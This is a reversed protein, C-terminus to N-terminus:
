PADSGTGDLTACLQAGPPHDTGTGTHVQAPRMHFGQPTFRIVFPAGFTPQRSRAFNPEGPPSGGRPPETLNGTGCRGLPSRSRPGPRQVPNTPALSTCGRRGGGRPPNQVGRPPRDNPFSVAFTGESAIHNGQPTHGFQSASGFSEAFASDSVPQLGLPTQVEHSGQPTHVMSQTGGPPTAGRHLPRGQTHPQIRADSVHRQGQDDEQPASGNPPPLPRVNCAVRNAGYLEGPPADSGGLNLGPPQRLASGNSRNDESESMGTPARARSEPYMRCHNKRRSDHRTGAQRRELKCSSTASPRDTAASSLLTPPHDAEM